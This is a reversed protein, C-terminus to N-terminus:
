SVRTLNRTAPGVVVFHDMASDFPGISHVKSYHVLCLRPEPNDQTYIDLATNLYSAITANTPTSGATPGIPKGGATSTIDIDRYLNRLMLRGPRQGSDFPPKKIFCVIEGITPNHQGVGPLMGTDYATGTLNPDTDWLHAQLDFPVDGSSWNKLYANNIVADTRLVGQMAGLVATVIADTPGPAGATSVIDISNRWSAGTTPNTTTWGLVYHDPFLVYAM